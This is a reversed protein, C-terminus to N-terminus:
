EDFYGKMEHGRLYDEINMPKKGAPQVDRIIVSGDGCGVELGKKKVIQGIEGPKLSKGEGIQATYIKLPNGGLSTHAVPAPNMGHILNVIEVASKSWDIRALEKTLMPAYSSLEDNQPTAQLTDIKELTSAILQAGALSLRDFLHGATEYPELPTEYVEYVGGTDLGKEMRMTCVGSKEEGNIVAWQIPAAGRYKPLLSGHVNVCGYKPYELVYSPLIRGYAVVVIVDPNHEELVPMFAMDKFTEPQYVPIGKELAFQKVPPPLMKHGRGKPRDPQTVVGTVEHTDILKELCPVAFQPTGMFLIKM